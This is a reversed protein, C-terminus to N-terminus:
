AGSLWTGFAVGSLSFAGLALAGIAVVGVAIGALAIVGTARGGIAIIGRAAFGYSLLPEGAIMAHSQYSQKKSFAVATVLHTLLRIALMYVILFRWFPMKFRRVRDPGALSDRINRMRAPGPEYGPRSLM